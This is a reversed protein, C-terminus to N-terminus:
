DPLNQIGYVRGMPFFREELEAKVAASQSARFTKWDATLQAASGPGRYEEALDLLGQPLQIAVGTCTACFRSYSIGILSAAEFKDLDLDELLKEAPNVIQPESKKQKM